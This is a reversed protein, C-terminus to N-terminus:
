QTEEVVLAYEMWLDQPTSSLGPLRTSSASAPAGGRMRTHASAALGARAMNGRPKPSAPGSDVTIDNSVRAAYVDMHQLNDPRQAEAAQVEAEWVNLTAPPVTARLNCFYMDSSEVTRKATIYRSCLTETMALM